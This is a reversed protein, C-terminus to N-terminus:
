AVKTATQWMAIHANIKLAASDPDMRVLSTHARKALDKFSQGVVWATDGDIVILRDHLSRAPALRVELPRKQKWQAIWREAAPKLSPKAYQEDSMVFVPLGEPALPVFDSILTDDGYPDILFVNKKAAALAKSVAQYGDFVGGAPIFAGQQEAPLKLEVRAIVTDIVQAIMNATLASAGQRNVHDFYARLNIVEMTSGEVADVLALARGMWKSASAKGLQDTPPMENRLRTLQHYLAEPTPTEMSRLIQDLVKSQQDTM